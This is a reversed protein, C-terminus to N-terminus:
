IKFLKKNKLEYVEDCNKLLDLKHSIIMLTKNEKFKYINKMIEKETSVDLSSTSEDFILIKPDNYLARAIGVRQLQGGSIKSGSEGVFTDLGNQLNNIFKKLEANTICLELKKENIKEDEIGFVINKKLTDDSLFVTQPVYGINKRWSNINSFISKNDSYIKGEQPELLGTIINILTSKGSGSEGFIGISSGKKIELNLKEIVTENGTYSFKLGNIKLVNNFNVEEKKNIIKEEKETLNILQEYLNELPKKTFKVRQIYNLIRYVSPMMRFSAVAFFGLIPLSQNIPVGTFILTFIVIVFGLILLMEIILRPLSTVISHKKKSDILKANSKEFSNIFLNIKDFIIIDKIGSFGEILYKFREKTSYHVDTGLKVNFKNTIKLFIYGFFSLIVLASLTSLFQTTLVLLLLGILILIEVLLGTIANATASFYNIDSQIDRHFNSSNRELHFLYPAKMYNKYLKNTLLLELKYILKAKNWEIFVQFIFRLLFVILILILLGGIYNLHKSYTLEFLQLPSFYLLLDAFKLYKDFITEDVIISLLPLISGISLIELFASILSLGFFFYFTGVLRLNKIISYFHKYSLM